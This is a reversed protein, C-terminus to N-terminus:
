NITPYIKDFLLSLAILIKEWFIESRFLAIIKKDSTHCAVFKIRPLHNPVKPTTKEKEKKALLFYSWSLSLWIPRSSYLWKWKRIHAPGPRYRQTEVWFLSARSRSQTQNQSILHDMKESVKQIQNISHFKNIMVVNNMMLYCNTYACPILQNWWFKHSSSIMCWSMFCTQVHHSWLGFV